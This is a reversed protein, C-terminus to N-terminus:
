AAGGVVIQINNTRIEWERVEVGRKYSISAIKRIWAQAAVVLDNGLTDKLVVPFVGLGTFEDAKALGSLFLNSKSTQLLKVMILGRKDNNAFRVVDGQAGADDDFLNADRDASVMDDAFGTILNGAVILEIKKTDFTQLTNSM